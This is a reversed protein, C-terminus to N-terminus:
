FRVDRCGEDNQDGNQIAKRMAIQHETAAEIRECSREYGEKLQLYISAPVDKLESARYTLRKFWSEPVGTARSARYRAAERTDGLGRFHLRELEAAWHQSRAVTNMPKGSRSCSKGSESLDKGCM